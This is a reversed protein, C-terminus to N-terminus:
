QVRNNSVVLTARERPNVPSGSDCNPTSIRSPRLSLSSVAGCACLAAVFLKTSFTYHMLMGTNFCPGRPQNRDSTHPNIPFSSNEVSFCERKHLLYECTLPCGRNTALLAVSPYTRSTIRPFKSLASDSLTSSFANSIMYFAAAAASSALFSCCSDDILSDHNTIM